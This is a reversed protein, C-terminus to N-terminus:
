AQVVSGVYRSATTVLRACRVVEIGIRADLAGRRPGTSAPRLMWAPPACISVAIADAEPAPSIGDSSGLAAASAVDAPAQRRARKMGEADMPANREESAGISEMSADVFAEARETASRTQKVAVSGGADDERPPEPM